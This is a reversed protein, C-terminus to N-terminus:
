RGISRIPSNNGSAIVAGLMGGVPMATDRLLGREDPSLHNLVDTFIGGMGAPKLSAPDLGQIKTGVARLEDKRDPYQSGRAAVTEGMTHLSHAQLSKRDEPTLKSSLEKLRSFGATFDDGRKGFNAQFAKQYAAAGPTLTPGKPGAM